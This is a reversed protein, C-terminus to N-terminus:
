YGKLNEDTLRGVCGVYNYDEDYVPAVVRNYMPKGKVNCFGVDFTDLTEEAFGRNLYYEAPRQLGERIEERTINPTAKKADTRLPDLIKDLTKPLSLYKDKLESLITM